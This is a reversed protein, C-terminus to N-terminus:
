QGLPDADGDRALQKPVGSDGGRAVDVAVQERLDALLGGGDHVAPHASNKIDSLDITQLDETRVGPVPPGAGYDPGQAELQPRVMVELAKLRDRLRDIAFEFLALQKFLLSHGVAMAAMDIEEVLDITDYLFPAGFFRASTQLGRFRELDQGDLCALELMWDRFRVDDVRRGAVDFGVVEHATTLLSTPSVDLLYALELLEEVTVRRLGKGLNSVVQQIRTKRSVASWRRAFSTETEGRARLLVGVAYGLAQDARLGM